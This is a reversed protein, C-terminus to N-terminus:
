EDGVCVPCPVLLRGAPGDEIVGTGDCNTCATQENCSVHQLSHKDSTDFDVLVKNNTRFTPRVSWQLLAKMHREIPRGCRTCRHDVWLM